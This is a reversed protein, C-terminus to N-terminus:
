LSLSFVRTVDSGLDNAYFVELCVCFDELCFNVILQHHFFHFYGKERGWQDKNENQRVSNTRAQVDNTQSM